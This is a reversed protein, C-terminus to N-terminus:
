KSGFLDLDKVLSQNGGVKIGAAGMLEFAASDPNLYEFTSCIRYNGPPVVDFRFEGHLGARAVRPEIVRTRTVPDYGELFVAAGVVPEGAQTVVGTVIGGGGSLGYRISSYMRIMVENWGDPRRDASRGYGLGSFSSVYNGANPVFLLEYRGPGLIGLGDTVVVANTKGVGAFDKRRAFLQGPPKGKQNGPSFVFTTPKTETMGLAFGPLNKTLTFRTYGGYLTDDPPDGHGEAYLEYEGPALDPFDFQPGKREERGMESALTVVVDPGGPTVVGSLRFLKGQQPRLDFNRVEEDAFVDVPRSNEIPVSASAFTPIFQLEEETHAGSRVYYRGPELGSLRYVGRDDTKARSVIQPPQTAKWATVDFGAMGVENPDRVTGAIAGLRQLRLSVFQADDAKLILAFGASNWRRQGNEMPLFGPRSAKLVWGGAALGSFEFTGREGARISKATGETGPIPEIQVLTRALPNGTLSETIVGRIVAGRALGALCILSLLV